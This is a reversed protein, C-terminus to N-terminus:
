STYIILYLTSKKLVKYFELKKLINPHLSSAFFVPYERLSHCWFSMYKEKMAITCQRIKDNDVSEPDLNFSHYQATMSLFNSYFGLSIVLHLNKSMLLSQKVISDDDKNKLYVFYKM